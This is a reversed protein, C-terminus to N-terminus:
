PAFDHGCAPCHVLAKEDLRGQEEEGAPAFDPEALIADPEALIADLEAPDFGLVDLGYGEDQLTGIEVTLADVDWDSLGVRNDAIRAAKVQAPSLDARIIVPVSTIGLKKCALLRGHGKVLVGDGDVVLPQDIGFESISSAIKSVQEDPHKKSNLVYPTIEGIDWWEVDPAFEKM